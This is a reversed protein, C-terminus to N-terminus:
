IKFICSPNEKKIYEFLELKQKKQLIFNLFIKKANTKNFILVYFSGSSKYVLSINKLELLSKRTFFTIRIYKTNYSYSTFLYAVLFFEAIIFIVILVFVFDKANYLGFGFFLIFFPIEVFRVFININKM